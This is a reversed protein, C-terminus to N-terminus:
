NSKCLQRLLESRDLGVEIAKGAALSILSQVRVPRLQSVPKITFINGDGYTASAQIDVQITPNSVKYTYTPKLSVALLLNGNGMTRVSVITGEPYDGLQSFTIQTAELFTYCNKIRHPRICDCTPTICILYSNDPKILVTGQNLRLPLIAQCQFLVDLDALTDIPSDVGLKIGLFHMALFRMADKKWSHGKSQGGLNDPWKFNDSDMWTDLSEFLEDSKNSQNPYSPQGDKNLSKEYEEFKEKMKAKYDDPLDNLNKWHKLLASVTDNNIVFAKSPLFRQTVRATWEDIALANFSHSDKIPSDQELWEIIFPLDADPHFQDLVDHLCDRYQGLLELAALQLLGGFRQRIGSIAENLVQSPEVCNDGGAQPKNKLSFSFPGCTFILQTGDAPQGIREIIRERVESLQEDTLIFVFRPSSTDKLKELLDLAPGSDMSGLYWDLILIDSKTALELAADKLADRYNFGTFLYGQKTIEQGIKLLYAQDTQTSGSPQEKKTIPIAEDIKENPPISQSEFDLEAPDIEEPIPTSQAESWHDDILVVAKVFRRITKDAIQEYSHPM